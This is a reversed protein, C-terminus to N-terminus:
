RTLPVPNLRPARLGGGTVLYTALQHHTGVVLAPPVLFTFPARRAEPTLTPVVAVIRGDLAIAVWRAAGTNELYGDNWLWNLLSAHPRARRLNEARNITITEPGTERRLLPKSALGVLGGYPARRYIRLRPDGGPPVPQARLVEAFNTAGDIERYRRDTPPALGIPPLWYGFFLPRSGETRPAGRLSRGDFHWPNRVHIVDAITPLVDISEAPRDDVRGAAQGPYKVILPTWMVQALTRAAPSRAPEGPTFAIGHDATAVIMTDDLAGIARLRNVIRGLLTDAAQVQLLHRQQSDRAEIGLPMLLPEPQRPPDYAQLTGIHDWPFHPSVLHVFDLRPRRSPRLSDVFSTATAVSTGAQDIDGDGSAVHGPLAFDEWLRAGDAILGPAGGSPHSCDSPPCLHTITEHVNLDYHDALMTFLNRPYEKAIPLTRKGTPYRGTLIAPVAEQTFGSVTASNRYWTARDAFRAFAPYLQRDIHGTGDLLSMEPFEDMVVVVVRHPTRPSLSPTTSPGSLVVDTVPSVFLFMAAFAVPAVALFRLFQRSLSVRWIVLGGVIGGLVALGYVRSNTLPTSRHVVELVLLGVFMGCLLGHAWPRARRSVRGVVWEIGLALLPAAFLAFAVLAVTEAVTARRIVFLEANKALVDLAPQTIALGSLAFFEAFAWLNIHGDGTGAKRPHGAM